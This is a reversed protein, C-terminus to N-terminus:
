SGSGAQQRAQRHHRNCWPTGDVAHRGIRWCREEHCNHKHWWGAAMGLLTVEAIDSGSGSWFNYNPAVGPENSSGTHVTLWHQVGLRWFIVALAVLVAPLWKLAQKAWGM